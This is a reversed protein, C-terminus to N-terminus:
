GWCGSSCMIVDIALAAVFVGVGGLCLLQLSYLLVLLRPEPERLVMQFGAFRRHGEGGVVDVVDFRPEHRAPIRVQVGLMAIASLLLVATGLEMAAAPSAAAIVLAGVICGAWALQVLRLSRDRAVTGLALLSAAVRGTITRTYPTRTGKM